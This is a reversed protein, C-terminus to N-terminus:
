LCLAVRAAFAGLGEVAGALVVQLKPVPDGEIFGAFHAIRGEVALVTLQQNFVPEKKLM